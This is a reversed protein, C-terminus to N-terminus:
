GCSAFSAPDPFTDRVLAFVEYEKNTPARRKTSRKETLKQVPGPARASALLGAGESAPEKRFGAAKTM